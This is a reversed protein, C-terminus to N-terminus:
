RRPAKAVSSIATDRPRAFWDTWPAAFGSAKATPAAKAIPKSGPSARDSEGFRALKGEERVRQALADLKPEPTWPKESHGDDIRVSLHTGSHAAYHSDFFGGRTLDVLLLEIQAAPLDLTWVEDDRRGEVDRSATAATEDRGETVRNLGKETTDRTSLSKQGALTRSNSGSTLRIPMRAQPTDSLILTARAREASGDPHPFEIKLTAQQWGDFQSVSTTHSTEAPAASTAQSVRIERRSGGRQAVQATPIDRMAGDVAYVMRVNKFQPSGHRDVQVRHTSQCGVLLTLWSATWCFATTHLFRESVFEM